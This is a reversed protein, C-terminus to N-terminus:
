QICFKLTSFIYSVGKVVSVEWSGDPSRLTLSNYKFKGVAYSYRFNTQFYFTNVKM